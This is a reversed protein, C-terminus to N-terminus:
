CRLQKFRWLVHIMIYSTCYGATGQDLAMAVIIQCDPCLLFGRAGFANWANMSETTLSSDSLEIVEVDEEEVEVVYDQVQVLVIDM